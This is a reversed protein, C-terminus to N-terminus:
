DDESLEWTEWGVHYKCPAEGICRADPDDARVVRLGGMRVQVCWSQGSEDTADLCHLKACVGQGPPHPALSDDSPLRRDRLFRCRLADRATIRKTADLHLCQELLELADKVMRQHEVKEAEPWISPPQALKPNMDQVLESWTRSKDKCISPINTLFTRNHLMACKEMKGRGVIAAIEALAETDDNSNFLPFKGSLCALLIIGASWVDLAVTQSECKFLVEPARFGRTGARNAKVRPWISVQRHDETKYGINHSGGEARKRVFTLKRNLVTLEHASPKIRTGHPNDKTPPTHLCQTREPYDVRQALGFDCLVGWGTGDPGAKPDFLFNAPKVDRHVIERAHIDRLARFLHRFYTQMTRMPLSQFYDRFDVSRHFPMVCVVQDEDRFATILQSVHRCGRAVEMLEIENAIRQPSSTVYIRKIAVFVRGRREFAPTYQTSGLKSSHPTSALLIPYDAYGLHTNWERNDYKSFNLDIAKYVSSFTGEGLRDVLEYNGVLGQVREKLQRMEASIYHQEMEDKTALSNAEDDSLEEDPDLDEQETGEAVVVDERKSNLYEEDDEGEADEDGGEDELPDAPRPFTVTVDAEGEGDDWFPNSTALRPEVVQQVFAVYEEAEDESPDDPDVNEVGEVLETSDAAADLDNMPADDPETEDEDPDKAAESEDGVVQHIQIEDSSVDDGLGRSNRSKRQRPKPTAGAYITRTVKKSKGTMSLRAQRVYTANAVDSSSVHLPNSPHESFMPSAQSSSMSHVLAAM